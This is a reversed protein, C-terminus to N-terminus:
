LLAQDPPILRSKGIYQVVSRAFENELITNERIIEWKDNSKSFYFGAKEMTYTGFQLFQFEILYYQSGDYGVDMAMYPCDFGQFVNQAYDLLGLPLEDKFEFLGSGSARFDNKRNRRFLVYYKDGYIVIKYDNNLGCIYNQTLFKRRHYSHRKHYNRLASKVENKLIDLANFSRSLIKAYSRLGSHSKFLRVGQSVAGASPKIVAPMEVEPLSDVFEEYCGYYRSRINKIGKTGTIDRLIEMFVKNHHARFKHFDPILIGGQLQIGLLIDEIYSKYLLDRDESSQYLVYKDTYCDKRFDVNSYKMVVLNYGYEAFYQRLRGLDMSADKNKQSSYFYDRYDALLIIENNVTM